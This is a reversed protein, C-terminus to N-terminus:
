TGRALIAIWREQNIFFAGWEKWRPDLGRAQMAAFGAEWHIPWNWSSNRILSDALPLRIGQYIPAVLDADDPMGPLTWRVAKVGTRSSYASPEVLLDGSEPCESIRLVADADWGHFRFEACRDSIPHLTISVPKEPGFGVTQGNAFGAEVASGGDPDFPRIWERGTAKARFSTLFGNRFVATLSATEAELSTEAIRIM